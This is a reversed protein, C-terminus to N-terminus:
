VYYGEFRIKGTQTGSKANMPLNVRFKCDCYNAKTAATTILGDNAAGSITGGGNADTSSDYSVGRIGVKDTGGIGTYKLETASGTKLENNVNVEIWKNTVVDGTYNGSSDTTTVTAEIVDSCATAQGKNNWVHVNYVASTNSAKVQGFSHSSEVTTDTNEYVAFVPISM